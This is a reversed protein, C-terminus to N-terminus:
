ATCGKMEEFSRLIEIINGSAQAQDARQLTQEMLTAAMVGVGDPLERYITILERVRAQERPFEEGVTAM